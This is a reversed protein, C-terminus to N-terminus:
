FKDNNLINQIEAPLDIKAIEYFMSCHAAVEKKIKEPWYIREKLNTKLKKIWFQEIQEKAEEINNAFLLINMLETILNPKQEVNFFFSKYEEQENEIHVQQYMLSTLMISHMCLNVFKAYNQLELLKKNTEVTEYELISPKKIIKSNENLFIVTPSQKLNKGSIESQFKSHNLTFELCNENCMSPFKEKNPLIIVVTNIKSSLVQATRFFCFLNYRDILLFKAVSPAYLAYYTKSDISPYFQDFHNNM